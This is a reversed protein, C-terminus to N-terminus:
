AVITGLTGGHPPLLSIMGKRGALDSLMIGLAANFM